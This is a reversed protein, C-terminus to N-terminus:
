YNDNTGTTSMKACLGAGNSAAAGRKEVDAESVRAGDELNRSLRLPGSGVGVM